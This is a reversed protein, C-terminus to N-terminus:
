NIAHKVRRKKIFYFIFKLFLNVLLIILSVFASCELLLLSEFQNIMLSIPKTNTNALFSVASITIMSNVFFYSFMELITDLNAIIFVDKILRLRSIGLTQGVNEYNENMKSLANYALLYPSAFFHVINVLILISLSGYIFSSKFFLIYSIGLVVGPIALSSLSLLHIVKNTKNKTRSTFYASFYAIITGIISTLLAIILSNMLFRGASYGFTKKINNLTLTLDVPYKSIFTLFAFSFIPLSIFIITLTCILYAILNTYKDTKVGIVKSDNQNTKEEKLLWDILFAVIAPILLIIGIAIGKGYDLLGIVEQYMYLPLSMVRGGVMLPVGYDTFIVTFTAFIVSILSKGLFPITIGTIQRTKPIGLVEAAEYVSTDEYQLVDLIMLFAIPFSYLVSGMVLGPMGYISFKLNFLNTLIGNKGFLIVLGTGHSISPILMPVTLLITIISKFRINTKKICYALIYALVVSIITAISTYTLSGKLASIFTSSTYISGLNVSFLNVVMALLPGLINIGLFIIIVIRIIFLSNIKKTM